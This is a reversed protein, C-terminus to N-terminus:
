ILEKLFALLKERQQASLHSSDVVFKKATSKVKIWRNRNNTDQGVKEWEESNDKVPKPKERELVTLIAGYLTDYSTYLPDSQASLFDDTLASIEAVMEKTIFQTILPNTDSIMKLRVYQAHSINAPSPFLNILEQPISWARLGREVRSKPVGLADAIDRISPEKGEETLVAKRYEDFERGEDRASLKEFSQAMEILQNVQEKSLAQNTYLIDFDKGELIAGLRRRQGDFVGFKGQEDKVAFAPMFQMFKIGKRIKAVSAESVDESIRPNYPHVYTTQEVGASAIRTRIFEIDQGDITIVNRPQDQSPLVKSLTESMRGKARFATKISPKDSM